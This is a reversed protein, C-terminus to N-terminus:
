LLGEAAAADVAIGFLSLESQSVEGARQVKIFTLNFRFYEPTSNSSSTMCRELFGLLGKPPCGCTVPGTSGTQQVSETETM